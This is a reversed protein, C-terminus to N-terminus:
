RKKQSLKNNGSKTISNLLFIIMFNQVNTTISYVISTLEHPVIGQITDVFILDM